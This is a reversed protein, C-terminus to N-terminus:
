TTDGGGGIGVTDIEPGTPAVAGEVGEAGGKGGGRGVLLGIIGVRGAETSMRFRMSASNTWVARLISGVTPSPTSDTAAPCRLLAPLWCGVVRGADPEVEEVMEGSGIGEEREGSKSTATGTGFNVSFVSAGRRTLLNAKRRTAFCLRREVVAGFLAVALGAGEMDLADACCSVERLTELAWQSLSPNLSLSSSPVHSGTLVFEDPLVSRLSGNSGDNLATSSSSWEM